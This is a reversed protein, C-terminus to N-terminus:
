PTTPIPSCSNQGQGEKWIPTSQHPQLKYTLVRFSAGDGGEELGHQCAGLIDGRLSCIMGPAETRGRQIQGEERGGFM